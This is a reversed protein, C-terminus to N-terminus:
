KGMGRHLRKCEMEPLPEAEKRDAPEVREEISRVDDGSGKGMRKRM